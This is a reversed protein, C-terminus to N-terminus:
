RAVGPGTCANSVRPSTCKAEADSAMYRPSVSSTIAASNWAASSDNVAESRASCAEFEPPLDGGIEGSSM